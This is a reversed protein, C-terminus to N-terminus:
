DIEGELDETGTDEGMDLETHAVRIGLIDITPHELWRWSLRIGPRREAALCLDM